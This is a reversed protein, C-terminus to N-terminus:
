GRGVGGRPNASLRAAAILNKKGMLIGASQPGRMAKGGSIVVLDFGMDNFKWLNEVTPVDAAINIMTPLNYIQGIAVWEEDKIQGELSKKNLFYLMASKENIADELEKR